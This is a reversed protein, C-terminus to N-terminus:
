AMQALAKRFRRLSVGFFVTGIVALWIFSKWVVDIGAGRFL